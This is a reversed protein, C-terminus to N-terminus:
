KMAVAAIAGDTFLNDGTANQFKRPAEPRAVLGWAKVDGTFALDDVVKERELDIDPNVSHTFTKDKRSFSIGIDHTAAGIWVYAGMYRKGTQWIRIHHRKSFTNMEKEFVLAPPEGGVTLLSVPGQRYSHHDAVALFTKVDTRMDLDQAAMWGANTFATRLQEATGFFTLNILDSKVRRHTETRQPLSDVLDRLDKTPRLSAPERLVDPRPDGSISLPSTLLLGIEVGPEYVIRPKEAEAVVFKGLEMGALVAPHAAAALMLLDEVTDPKRRLPRLGHIVGDADVSERANDVDLVRAHFDIARNANGSLRGFHLLLVSHNLRRHAPSPDAVEGAVLFGAPLLEKGNVRVPAILIASVPDGPRAQKSALRNKLRVSFQAGAPIEAALALVRLSFAILAFLLAHRMSLLLSCAMNPPLEDVKSLCPAAPPPM